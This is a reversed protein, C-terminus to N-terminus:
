RRRFWSGSQTYNYGGGAEFGAGMGAELEISYVQQGRSNKTGIATEHNLSAGLGEYYGVSMDRGLGAFNDIDDANSRLTSVGYTLGSGSGVSVSRTWGVETSGDPRKVMVLCGSVAVAVGAGGGLSVCSGRSNTTMGLAALSGELAASLLKERLGGPTSNFGSIISNLIEHKKRREAQAKRREADARKKAQAKLQADIDARHTKAQAARKRA